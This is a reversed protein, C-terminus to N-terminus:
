AWNPGGNDKNETFPLITDRVRALLEQKHVQTRQTGAYASVKM